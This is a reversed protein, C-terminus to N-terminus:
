IQAALVSNKIYDSLKEAIIKHGNEDYHLGDASSPKVFNNIDFIECNYRQAVKNYIKETKQSKSISTEDFQFKFFGKLVDESLVVPPVIIIKKVNNIAMVILSELGNEIQDFTINYKFQLDNTGIALILIDVDKIQTIIEPFHRQASYLAGKDNDVFGTRDCMGENIVEYDAGLNNQLLATWRNKEDFRTGDVTNFGFTNSDGYCLIKKM